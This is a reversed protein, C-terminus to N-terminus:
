KIGSTRCRGYDAAVWKVAAEVVDAVAHQLHRQQGHQDGMTSAMMSSCGCRQRGRHPTGDMRDVLAVVDCVMRKGHSDRHSDFRRGADTANGRLARNVRPNTSPRTPNSGM